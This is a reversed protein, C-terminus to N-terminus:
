QQWLVTVRHGRIAVLQQHAEFAGGGPLESAYITGDPAIAFSSM